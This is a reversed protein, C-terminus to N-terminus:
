YQCGCMDAFELYEEEILDAVLDVQDIEDPTSVAIECVLMYGKGRDQKEIRTIEDVTKGKRDALITM